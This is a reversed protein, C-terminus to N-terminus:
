VIAVNKLHNIYFRNNHFLVEVVDFRVSCKQLGYKYLFYNAVKFIHQRKLYNVAESPRGFKINSRTKVEIFVYENKDKAIIDIEGQRCRFNREIIKYGICNLFKTACEEGKKGLEQNNINKM